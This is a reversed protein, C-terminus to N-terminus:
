RILINICLEKDIKAIESSVDFSIFQKLNANFAFALSDLAIDCVSCSHYQLQLLKLSIFKNRREGKLKSSTLSTRLMVSVAVITLKALYADPPPLRVAKEPKIGFPAVYTPGQPTKILRNFTLHM